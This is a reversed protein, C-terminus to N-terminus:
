MWECFAVDWNHGTNPLSQESVPNEFAHMERSADQLFQIYCQIALKHVTSSVPSNSRKLLVDQLSKVAGVDTIDMLSTSLLMKSLCYDDIERYAQRFSSITDESVKTRLWEMYHTYIMDNAECLLHRYEKLNTRYMYVIGTFLKTAPKLKTYGLYASEMSALQFTIGAVNRYTIDIRKGQAKAMRRLKSSASEIAKKRTITGSAYHLYEELLIAAEHIVWPEQKM